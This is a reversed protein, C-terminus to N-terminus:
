PRETGRSRTLNTLGAVMATVAVLLNTGVWVKAGLLPRAVDGATDDLHYAELPTLAFSALGLGIISAWINPAQASLMRWISWVWLPNAFWAPNVYFAGWGLLLAEMGSYFYRQDPDAEYPVEYTPVALAYAFL